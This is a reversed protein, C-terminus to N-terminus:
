HSPQANIAGATAGGQVAAGHQSAGQQALQAPSTPSAPQGLQGLTIILANTKTRTATVLPSNPDVSVRAFKWTPTASGGFSAAFTIQEQFTNFPAWSRPQSTAVGTSALTAKDIIFQAIKLDSEIMVGKQYGDCSTKNGLRVNDAYEDLLQKNAYTFQITEVRTANATGSAGLGLTFSQPSVVNGGVPFAKVSNELPTMLSVGPNAASQEEATVTLSVSTGWKELWPVYKIKSAEWLGNRIECEVHAAIRNELEGIDSHGNKPNINDRTLVDKEPVTLGCAGLVLLLILGPPLVGKFGHM